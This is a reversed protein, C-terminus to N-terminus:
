RREEREEITPLNALDREVSAAFDDSETRLLELGAKRRARERRRRADAGVLRELRPWEAAALVAVACALLVVAFWSVLHHYRRKRTRGVKRSGNPPRARQSVAATSRLSSARATKGSATAAHLRVLSLEVVAVVGTVVAAVVREPVTGTEGV